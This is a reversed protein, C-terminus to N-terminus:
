QGNTTGGNNMTGGNMAGNNMAGGNMGNMAPGVTMTGMPMGMGPSMITQYDVRVRHPVPGSVLYTLPLQVVAGPPVTLWNVVKGDYLVSAGAGTPVAVYGYNSRVLARQLVPDTSVVVASFVPVNLGPLWDGSIGNVTIPGMPTQTPAGGSMTSTTTTTTTTMDPGMVEHMAGTNDMYVVDPAGGIVVITSEMQAQAAPVFALGAALLTSSIALAASRLKM